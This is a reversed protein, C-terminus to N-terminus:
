STCQRAQKWYRRVTSVHVKFQAAVDAATRGSDALAVIAERESPKLRHEYLQVAVEVTRTRHEPNALCARYRYVETGESRTESVRTGHGCEPCLFPRTVEAM